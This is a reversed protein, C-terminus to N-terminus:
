PKKQMKATLFTRADELAQEELAIEAPDLEFRVNQLNLGAHQASRRLLDMALVPNRVLVPGLCGTYIVNGTAAGELGDGCNGRGYIVTAFPEQDMGLTINVLKIENGIIQLGEPTKIWLDDGYVNSRETWLMDLLELGQIKTGDQLFLTRGLIAGSSGNAVIMNGAKAFAQLESLQPRLARILDPACSLEGSCFYLFDTEQLPVPQGPEEVRRIELPLRALTGFRLLAMIDGRGGHTSLSSPYMWAIRLRPTDAPLGLAELNDITGAGPTRGTRIKSFVDISAM